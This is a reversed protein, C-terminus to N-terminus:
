RWFTKGGSITHRCVQVIPTDRSESELFTELPMWLADGEASSSLSGGSIEASFILRVIGPEGAWEQGSLVALIGIPQIHFGTEERVERVLAAAPKERWRVHGGPLVPEQRIPDIVTLIRGATVIMASVSVFPPMRGLTLAAALTTVARGLQRSYRYQRTRWPARAPLRLDSM